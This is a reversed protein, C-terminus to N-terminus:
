GSIKGLYLETIGNIVLLGDSSFRDFVARAGHKFAPYHRSVEDPASSATTLSGFFAEWNSQFQFPTEQFLFEGGNYYYSKPECLGIMAAGTDTEPPYIGQLAEGIEHDTGYNRCIALWGGPKLIRYLERRAEEPIFYHIAQAVTVLAVSDDALGIAEARGGLVQCSPFPALKRALIARMEPNPEIAYIRQVKCAFERTLIGTGAGIDAVWSEGMIGAVDSITQICEPAYGWRYRAYLTAKTSFVDTPEM